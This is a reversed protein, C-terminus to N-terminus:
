RLRGHVFAVEEGFRQVPGIGALSGRKKVLRTGSIRFQPAPQLFQEGSVGM